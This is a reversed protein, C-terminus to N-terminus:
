YPLLKNLEKHRQECGCGPKKEIGLEQLFAGLTDGAGLHGCHKGWAMIAVLVVLVLLIYSATRNM